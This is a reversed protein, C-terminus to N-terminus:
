RCLTAHEGQTCQCDLVDSIPDYPEYVRSVGGPPPPLRKGAPLLERWPAQQGSLHEYALIADFQLYEGLPAGRAARAAAVRADWLYQLEHPTNLENEDVRRKLEAWPMCYMQTEGSQPMGAAVWASEDREAEFMGYEPSMQWECFSDEHLAYSCSEAWATFADFEEEDIADIDETALLANLEALTQAGEAAISEDDDDDVGTPLLERDPEASQAEFRLRGRAEAARFYAHAQGAALSARQSRRDQLSCEARADTM